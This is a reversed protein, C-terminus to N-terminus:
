RGKKRRKRPDLFRVMELVVDVGKGGTLELVRKTTQANSLQQAFM